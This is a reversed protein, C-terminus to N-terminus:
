GARWVLRHEPVPDDTAAPIRGRCRWWMAAGSAANVSIGSCRRLRAAAARAALDPSSGGASSPFPSLLSPVPHNITYLSYSFTVLCRQILSAWHMRHLPGLVIIL